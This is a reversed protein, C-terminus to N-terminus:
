EERSRKKGAMQKAERRQEKADEKQQKKLASAAKAKKIVAALLPPPPDHARLQPTHTPPHPTARSSPRRSASDDAEMIGMGWGAPLDGGFVAKYRSLTYRATLLQAAPSGAPLTAVAPPPRTPPRPALPTLPPRAACPARPRSARPPAAGRWGSERRAMYKAKAAAM